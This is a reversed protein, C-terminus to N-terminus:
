IYPKARYIMYTSQVKCEPGARPLLALLGMDLAIHVIWLYIFVFLKPRGIYVIIEGFVELRLKLCLKVAETTSNNIKSTQKFFFKSAIDSMQFNKILFKKYTFYKM